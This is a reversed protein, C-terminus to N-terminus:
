LSGDFNCFNFVLWITLDIVDIEIKDRQSNGNLNAKDLTATSEIQTKSTNTILFKLNLPRIPKYQLLTKNVMQRKNVVPLYKNYHYSLAKGFSQINFRAKKVRNYPHNNTIQKNIPRKIVVNEFNDKSFHYVKNSNQIGSNGRNFDNSYNVRNQLQSNNTLNGNKNNTENQKQDIVNNNDIIPYNPVHINTNSSLDNIDNSEDDSLIIIDDDEGEEIAITTKRIPVVREKRALEEVFKSSEKSLKLNITWNFQYEKRNYYDQWWNKLQSWSWFIM